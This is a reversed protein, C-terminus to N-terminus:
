FDPCKKPRSSRRVFWRQSSELQCSIRGATYGVGALFRMVPGFSNCSGIGTFYLGEVSSEFNASLLPMQEEHRLRSKLDESLFPLDRLKFKYGTAAIVHDCILETGKHDNVQLAVGGGRTNAQLVHQGLGIPLRGVVRDKLWWAGAPGLTDKVKDLRIRQPLRHFLGPVNDYLWLQLGDGLRTRPFRLREYRSRHVKSPIWNWALSRERVLLNVSAGEEHLIAATELASQGGGIVTVEKGKFGSLDYHDASHSRLEAPLRALPEPIRAMYEMGTAVIVKRAHLTEGTSLRLEFGDQLGSVTTVAADEVNPVLEQQFYVAYQAFIDRSVPEVYDSYPLGKSSCYEALTHHGTPDSLSSACGESKLLMSKPMQSLWRRMPSGFIRFDIGVAKLHAAISVGYPGAGIVCVSPHSAPNLEIGERLCHVKGSKPSHGPDLRSISKPLAESKRASNSVKVVKPCSTKGKDCPESSLNVAPRFARYASRKVTVFKTHVGCRARRIGSFQVDPSDESRSPCSRFGM